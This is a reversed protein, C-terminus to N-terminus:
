TSGRMVGGGRKHAAHYQRLVALLLWGRLYIKALNTAAAQCSPLNQLNNITRSHQSSFSVNAWKREQVSCSDCNSSHNM